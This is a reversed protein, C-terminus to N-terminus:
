RTTTTATAWSTCSAALRRKRRRGTARAMLRSKEHRAQLMPESAPPAIPNSSNQAVGNPGSTASVIPSIAPAVPVSPSNTICASFRSAPTRLQPPLADTM